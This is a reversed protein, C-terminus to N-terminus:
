ANGLSMYYSTSPTEGIDMDFTTTTVEQPTQAHQQLPPREQPQYRQGNPRAQINQDMRAGNFSSDELDAEDEVCDQMDRTRKRLLTHTQPTVVAVALSSSSAGDM